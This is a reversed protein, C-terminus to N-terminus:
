LHTRSVLFYFYFQTIKKKVRKHNKSNSQCYSSSGLTYDDDDFNDSFENRPSGLVVEFSSPSSSEYKFSGGETKDCMVCPTICTRNCISSEMPRIAALINLPGM